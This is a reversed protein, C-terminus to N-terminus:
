SIFYLINNFKIFWKDRKINEFMLIQEKHNYIILYYVYILLNYLIYYAIRISQMFQNLYYQAM